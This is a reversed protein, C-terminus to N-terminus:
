PFFFTQKVVSLLVHAAVSASCSSASIQGTVMEGLLVVPIVAVIFLMLAGRFHRLFMEGARQQSAATYSM